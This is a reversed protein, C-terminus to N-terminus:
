RHIGREHSRERVKAEMRAAIGRIVEL